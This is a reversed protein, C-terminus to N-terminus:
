SCLREGVVELSDLATWIAPIWHEAQMTIASDNVLCGNVEEVSLTGDAILLVQSLCLRAQSAYDANICIPGCRLAPQCFLSQVGHIGDECVGDPMALPRWGRLYPGFEVFAPQIFKMCSNSAACLSGSGANCASPLQVHQM